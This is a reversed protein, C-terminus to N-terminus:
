AIFEVCALVCRFCVEVHWDDHGCRMGCAWGRDVCMILEHILDQCWGAQLVLCGSVRRGLNKSSRTTEMERTSTLFSFRQMVTAMVAAFCRPVMCEIVRLGGGLNCSPQRSGSAGENLRERLVSVEGTAPEVKSFFFVHLKSM